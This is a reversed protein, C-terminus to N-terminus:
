VVSKRDARRLIISAAQLCNVYEAEDTKKLSELLGSERLIFYKAKKYNGLYYHSYALNRLMNCYQINNEGITGRMIAASEEAYYLASDYSAEIMYKKHLSEAETWQQSQCVLSTCISVILLINFKKM